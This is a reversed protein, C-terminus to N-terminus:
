EKSFLGLLRAILNQRVPQRFLIEEEQVGLTESTQDASTDQPPPGPNTEPSGGKPVLGLRLETKSFRDSM